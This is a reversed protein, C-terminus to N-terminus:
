LPRNFTKSNFNEVQKFRKIKLKLNNKLYPTVHEKEVSTKSKKYAESLSRFNFIEIDFGDSYDPSKANNIYDFKGEIFKKMMDDVLSPDIM